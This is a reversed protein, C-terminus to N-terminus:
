IWKALQILHPSHIECSHFNAGCIQRICAYIIITSRLLKQHNCVSITQKAMSFARLNWRYTHSHPQRNDAVVVSWGFLILERFQCENKQFIFFAFENANLLLSQADFIWVRIIHPVVASMRTVSTWSSNPYERNSERSYTNNNHCQAGGFKDCTFTWTNRKAWQDFTSISGCHVVLKFHSSLIFISSFVNLSARAFCMFM